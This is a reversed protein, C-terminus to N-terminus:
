IQWETHPGGNLTGALTAVGTIGVSATLNL